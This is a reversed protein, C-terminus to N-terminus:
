PSRRMSCRPGRGCAGGLREPHGASRSGTRVPRLPQRAGGPRHAEGDSHRAPRPTPAKPKDGAILFQSVPHIRLLACGGGGRRTGDGIGAGTGLGKTGGNWPAERGLVCFPSCARWGSFNFVPRRARPRTASHLHFTRSPVCERSEHVWRTDSHVRSPRHSPIRCPRVASRWTRLLIRVRPIGAM